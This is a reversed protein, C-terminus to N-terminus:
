WSVIILPAIFRSTYPIHALALIIDTAYLVSMYVIHAPACQYIVMVSVFAFYRFCCHYLLGVMSPVPYCCARSYSLGSCAMSVCLAASSLPTYTHVDRLYAAIHSVVVVHAAVVDAFWKAGYKRYDSWHMYSLLSSTCLLECLLLPQGRMYGYFGACAIWWSTERLVGCHLMDASNM